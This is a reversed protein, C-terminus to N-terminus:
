RPAGPAGYGAALLKRVAAQVKAAYRDRYYPTSSNYAGIADWTNGYKDMMRRLIWAGTYISKCSDFLDGSTMGYHELEPLHTSNIQMEGLDYSGNTNHNVASPTDNSEVMAIARLILPNVHHYLAADDFCDARAAPAAALCALALASLLIRPARRGRRGTGGGSRHVARVSPQQSIM